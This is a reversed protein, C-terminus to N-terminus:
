IIILTQVEMNEGGESRRRVVERAGEMKEGGGAGGWGVGTEAGEDEWGGVSRKEKREESKEVHDVSEGEKM